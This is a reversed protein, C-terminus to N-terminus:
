HSTLSTFPVVLVGRASTKLSLDILLSESIKGFSIRLGENILLGLWSQTRRHTRLVLAGHLTLSTLSAVLM